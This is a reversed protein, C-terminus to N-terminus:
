RRRPGGSMRSKLRRWVVHAVFAEASDHGYRGLCDFYEMEAQKVPCQDTASLGSRGSLRREVRTM